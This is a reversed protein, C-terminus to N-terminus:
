SAGAHLIGNRWRIRASAPPFSGNAVSEVLWSELQLLMARRYLDINNAGELLPVAKRLYKFARTLDGSLAEIEALKVALEGAISTGTGDRADMRM